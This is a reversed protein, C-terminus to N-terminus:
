APCTPCAGRRRQGPSRSLNREAIPVVVPATAGALEESREWATRQGHARNGQDARLQGLESQVRALVERAQEHQQQQAGLHRQLVERHAQLEEILKGTGALREARQRRQDRDFRAPRQRENAELTAQASRLESDTEASQAQLRALEDDALRQQFRGRAQQLEVIRSADQEGAAHQREERAIQEMALDEDDRDRMRRRMVELPDTREPEPGGLEAIDLDGLTPEEVLFVHTPERARSAATYTWNRSFHRAAGIVSAREVTAGQTGHGTLCYAYDLHERLYAPDVRRTGGADARIVLGEHEDVAIVTATMGNDLDRGRDNARAIVREGVAWERGAIRVEEGLLGQSHLQTRARRNLRERRENERSIMIAAAEGHEHRDQGWRELLAREGDAAADPGRFLHLEGREQKREVYPDPHGQHVEALLRREESDRQRMVERLERSGIRRTLAGLWGGAQVSSLQGSDGLAIVKMQGKVAAEIVRASLRTHAMGAEDIILVGGAYPSLCTEDAALKVAWGDLTLTREVGAREKLERVAKGTPAAGYVKIDAQEYLQGIAAATTTKGTGALAEVTEVQRGQATIARVARQQDAGLKQSLKGLEAEVHEAELIGIQRHQGEETLAVIKQEHALLEGTTWRREWRGGSIEVAGGDQLLRGTVALVEGVSAGQAHESCVAMVVDREAFTNQRQTLGRASFLQDALQREPVREPESAPASRELEQVEAPGLGHESARAAIAERWPQEDILRKSQRTKLAIQERVRATVDVGAAVLERERELIRKRRQSFEELVHGSVQQLEAIGEKVPGWIAWPLRGRVLQRLHAEYVFGGAKAHQYIASADLTTFREDAGCAMNAVVCHTHLQPDQARSMRHRWTAAVFGVAQESRAREFGRELGQAREKVTGNHGRRVRCAEREVYALAERVAEEHADVIARQLRQSGIAYLVSVSKPASFMLDFGYVECWEREGRENVKWQGRRGVLRDALEPHEGAMVRRYQESGVEGALGLEAAGAGMWRGPAEGEGRYYDERGTAVQSEYYDIQEGSTLKGIKLM